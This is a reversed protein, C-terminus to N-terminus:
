LLFLAGGSFLITATLIRGRDGDYFSVLKDASAGLRPQIFAKARVSDPGTVKWTM